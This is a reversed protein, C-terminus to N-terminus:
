ENWGGVIFNLGVQLSPSNSQALPGNADFPVAFAVQPVLRVQTAVHFAVGATAGVSEMRLKQRPWVAAAVTMAHAGRRVAM